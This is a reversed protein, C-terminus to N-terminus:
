GAEGQGDQLRSPRVSAQLHHKIIFSFMRHFPERDQNGQRKDTCRQRRRSGSLRDRAAMARRTILGLIPDVNVAGVHGLRAEALRAGVGVELEALALFLRNM